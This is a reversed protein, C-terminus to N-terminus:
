RNFMSTNANLSAPENGPLIRNMPGPTPAPTMLNQIVETVSVIGAGAVADKVIGEKKIFFVEALLSLGAVVAPTYETYEKMFAQSDLFNSVEGALYGGVGGALLKQGSKMFGKSKLM